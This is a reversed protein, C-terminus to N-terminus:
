ALGGRDKVSKCNTYVWHQTTDMKVSRKALSNKERIFESGFFFPGGGGGGGGFTVLCTSLFFFSVIVM